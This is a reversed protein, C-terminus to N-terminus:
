IQTERRIRDRVAAFGPTDLPAPTPVTRPKWKRVILLVTGIGLFLVLPPMIWAVRNFRTFMPSALIVPGYEDQFQHFIANDSDGRAISASLEALMGPSSPCGVHNCEGLLQNCGCACMLEHSDKQFRATSDTAGATVAIVVCLLALQSVRLFANRSSLRPSIL